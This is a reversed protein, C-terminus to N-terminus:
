VNLRVLTDLPGTKKIRPVQPGSPAWGSVRHSDCLKAAQRRDHYRFQACGPTTDRALINQSVFLGPTDAHLMVLLRADGCIVGRRDGERKRM